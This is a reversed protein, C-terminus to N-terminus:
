MLWLQGPKLVDVAAIECGCYNCVLENEACTRGYRCGAMDQMSRVCVRVCACRDADAITRLRHAITLV